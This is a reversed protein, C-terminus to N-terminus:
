EEEGAIVDLLPGDCGHDGTGETCDDLIDQASDRFSEGRDMTFYLPQEEWDSNPNDTYELSLRCQDEGAPEEVSYMVGLNWSINGGFKGPECRAIHDDFCEMDLCFPVGDVEGTFEMEYDEPPEWGAFTAPEFETFFDVLQEHLADVDEEEPNQYLAAMLLGDMYSFAAMNGDDEFIDFPLGTIEFRDIDHEFLMLQFQNYQEAAGDGYEVAVNVPDIHDPHHYQARVNLDEDDPDFSSIYYSGADIPFFGALPNIEAINAHELEWRALDSESVSELLEDFHDDLTSEDVQDAMCGSEVTARFNGINERHGVRAIRNRDDRYTLHLTVEEDQPEYLYTAKIHMADDFESIEQLKFHDTEDTFIESFQAESLTLAPAERDPAEWDYIRDLNYAELFDVMQQEILEPDPDDTRDRFIIDFYMGDIWGNVSMGSETASSGYFRHDGVQISEEDTWDCRNYEYKQRGREGVILNLSIRQDIDPDAHTYSTEIRLDSDPDVHNLHFDSSQLSLLQSLPYEERVTGHEFEWATLRTSLDGQLENQIDFRESRDDVVDRLNGQDFSYSFDLTSRSASIYERMVDTDEGYGMYFPITVDLPEYIYNAIIFMADEHHEVSELTFDEPAVPLLSELEDDTIEQGFSIAPLVWIVM